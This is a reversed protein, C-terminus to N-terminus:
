AAQQLQRIFSSADSTTLNELECGYADVAMKELEEVSIGRRRSLNYLARKQAESMKPQASKGQDGPTTQPEEKDSVKPEQADKAAAKKNATTKKPEKAAPKNATKPKAKRKIPQGSEPIADNFDSLEELATMGVNTYTRLARAIARTSAMRLLHKAVKSSTNSPSADGVDIFTEGIKSMVTARCVAFNGNDKTPMQVIDVEISTIGKQHGLDLM